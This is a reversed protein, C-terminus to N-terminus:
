KLKKTNFIIRRVRTKGFINMLFSIIIMKFDIFLSNKRIYHRDMVWSIKRHQGGYIQALGTIGPKISWRVSHYADNWGLRVIDAQTLARPGVISMDGKLVNFFQALEDLGTRRLIKGTQTPTENVMTQFKLIEFPQEDKGVRQQRFFVPHKEKGVLLLAIVAMPVAFVLLATVSFIIDFTRKM